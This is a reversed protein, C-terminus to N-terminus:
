LTALVHRVLPAFLFLGWLGILFMMIIFFFVRQM